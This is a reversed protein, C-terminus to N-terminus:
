ASATTAGRAVESDPPAPPTAVAVLDDLLRYSPLASRQVRGNRLVVRGSDRPRSFLESLRTARPFLVLDAPAGVSFACGDAREVGM